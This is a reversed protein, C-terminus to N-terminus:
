VQQFVRSEILGSFFVHRHTSTFGSQLLATTWDVLRDTKLGCTLRFFLYMFKIFLQTWGRESNAFDAVLWCAGTNLSAKIKAIVFGLKNLEFLDLYFFTIVADFKIEKPLSDETGLIFNIEASNNVSRRARRIMATSSDVYWIQCGPNLKMLRPLFKGTGGGLVLVTGSKPIEALYINQSRLIAGGFVLFTLSDYVPAIRDFNTM